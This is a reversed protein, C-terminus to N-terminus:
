GWWGWFLSRLFFFFFFFFRLRLFSEAWGDFVFGILGEVERGFSFSSVFSFTAMMRDPFEERIKSLLLTGM